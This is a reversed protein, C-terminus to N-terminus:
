QGIKLNKEIGKINSIDKPDKLQKFRLKMKNEGLNEVRERLEQPVSKKDAENNYPGRYQLKGEKDLLEIIKGDKTSELTVSGHQDLMKFRSQFGGKIKLGKNMEPNLGKPLLNLDFGELKGLGKQLEQLDLGELRGKFLKMLKERDEKPFKNLFDNRQEFDELEAQQQNRPPMDGKRVGSRPRPRAALTLNKSIAKGKSIYNLKVEDGPNKDAIAAKLDELSSIDKGSLSIIIDHRKLGAKFAPSNGAVLQLEIGIGEALNLHTSLTDSIPEGFVGLYAKKQVDLEPMPIAQEAINELLAEAAPIVPAATAIKEEPQAAPTPREIAYLTNALALASLTSYKVFLRISKETKM